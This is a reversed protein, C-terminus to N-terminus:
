NQKGHLYYDRLEGLADLSEKYIENRRIQDDLEVLKSDWESEQNRLDDHKSDLENIEQQIKEIREKADEYAKQNKTIKTQVKHLNMACNGREKHITNTIESQILIIKEWNATIENYFIKCVCAISRLTFFPIEECWFSTTSTILNVFLERIQFIGVFSYQEIRNKISHHSITKPNGSSNTFTEKETSAEKIIM